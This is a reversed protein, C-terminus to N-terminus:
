EVKHGHGQHSLTVSIGRNMLLVPVDKTCAKAMTSEATIKSNGRAFFGVCIRIKFGSRGCMHRIVGIIVSNRMQFCVKTKHKFLYM